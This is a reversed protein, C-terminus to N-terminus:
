LLGCVILFEGISYTLMVLFHTKLRSDKKFRVFFLSSDSVFFLAAGIATTITAATPFSVCRFIAFCNMAGNILLYLFMPYFLAKPLHPKLKSFIVAVAAAFFVALLVILPVSIRSFSIEKLYGLIFFAHSIMFAIGGATFWKVGKPMLLVDGIWSFILALVIAAYVSRAALVYFGLLSLLIFPKTFNRMRTDQRLSAALHIATSVIFVALFVYKM